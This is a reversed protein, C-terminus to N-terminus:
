VYSKPRPWCSLCCLVYNQLMEGPLFFAFGGKHLRIIPMIIIIIDVVFAFRLAGWRRLNGPFPPHSLPYGLGVKFTIRLRPM